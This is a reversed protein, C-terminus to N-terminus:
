NTENNETPDNELFGSLYHCFRDFLLAPLAPM